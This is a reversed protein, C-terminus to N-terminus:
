KESQHVLQYIIKERIEAEVFKFFFDGESSCDVFHNMVQGQPSYFPVNLESKKKKQWARNQDVKYNQTLSTTSNMLGPTSDVPDTQNANDNSAASSSSQDDNNEEEYESACEQESSSQEYESTSGEHESFSEEYESFNIKKKDCLVNICIVFVVVTGSM